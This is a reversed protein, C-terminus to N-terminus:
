YIDITARVISNYITDSASPGIQGRRLLVDLMNADDSRGITTNYPCLGLLKEVVLCYTLSNSDCTKIGLIRNDIRGNEKYFNQFACRKPAVDTMFRNCNYTASFDVGRSNDRAAQMKAAHQKLSPDSRVPSNTNQFADMDNFWAECCMDSFLRTNCQSSCMTAPPDRAPDRPKSVDIEHMLEPAFYHIQGGLLNFDSVLLARSNINAFREAHLHSATGVLPREIFVTKFPVGQTEEVRERLQKYLARPYVHQNSRSFEFDVSVGLLVESGNQWQRVGKPLFEWPAYELLPRHDRGFFCHENWTHFRVDSDIHMIYEADTHLDATLKSYKQQIHGNKLFVPEVVLKPTASAFWGKSTASNLHDKVIAASDEDTIILVDVTYSATPVLQVIARLATMGVRADMKWTRLVIGLTWKVKRPKPAAGPVSFQVAPTVEACAHTTVRCPTSLLPELELQDTVTGASCYPAYPATAKTVCCRPCVFNGTQMRCVDGHAAQNHHSELKTATGCWLAGSKNASTQPGHEARDSKGGVFHYEISNPTRGLQKDAIAATCASLDTARCPATAVTADGCYPPGDTTQCCRPCVFGNDAGGSRCVNGHNSDGVYQELHYLEPCMLEQTLVPWALAALVATAAVASVVFRSVVAM